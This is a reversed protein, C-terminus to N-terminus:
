DEFYTACNTPTEWISVSHIQPLSEKVLYYIYSAINEASSSSDKFHELDNIYQHDLRAIIERIVRKAQAFDIAIGSADLEKCRFRVITRYTHGHLRSCAGNYDKLCHASDFTDEVSIEYM